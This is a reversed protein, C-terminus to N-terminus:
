MFLILCNRDKSYHLLWDPGIHCERTEQLKGKLAHDRFKPDLVKGSALDNIVRGLKQLDYGSKKLRRLDRRFRKTPVRQYQMM